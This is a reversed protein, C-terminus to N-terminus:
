LVLLQLRSNDLCVNRMLLSMVSLAMIESNTM